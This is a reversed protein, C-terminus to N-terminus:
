LYQNISNISNVRAKRPRSIVSLIKFFVNFKSFICVACICIEQKQWFWESNLDQSKFLFKENLIKSEPALTITSHTSHKGLNSGQCRMPISIRLASDLTLRLRTLHFGFMGDMVRWWWFFKSERYFDNTSLYIQFVYPHAFLM